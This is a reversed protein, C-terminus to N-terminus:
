ALKRELLQALRRGLEVALVSFGAEALPVTFQGTGPGIELVRQVNENLGLQVLDSVLTAPYGPRAVAYLSAVDDFSERRRITRHRVESDQV